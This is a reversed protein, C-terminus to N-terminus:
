VRFGLGQISTGLRLESEDRPAGGEEGEEEEETGEGVM